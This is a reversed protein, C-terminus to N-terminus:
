RGLPTAIVKCHLQLPTPSPKSLALLPPFSAVLFSVAPHTAQTKSSLSLSGSPRHDSAGTGLEMAVGLKFQCVVPQTAAPASLHPSGKRRVSGVVHSAKSIEQGPLVLLGTDAGVGNYSLGLPTMSVWCCCLGKGAERIPM